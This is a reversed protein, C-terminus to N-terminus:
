RSGTSHRAQEVLGVVPELPVPVPLPELPAVVCPVVEVEPEAVAAALLLLELLELPDVVPPPSPPKTHM